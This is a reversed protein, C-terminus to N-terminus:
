ATFSRYSAVLPIAVLVMIMSNFIVNFSVHFYASIGTDLLYWGLLGLAIAFWSWREKRSYANYVVFLLSIGWGTITAGWAGYVWTRFAIAGESSTSDGWFVPDIGQNFVDFLATSNFFTMILGFIVLGFGVTKLWLVWLNFRDM